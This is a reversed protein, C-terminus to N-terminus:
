VHWPSRLSRTLLRNAMEDNSFYRKKADYKLQQGTEVAIYSLHSLLDAEVAGDIGAAPEKRSKVCDLFNQIHASGSSAEPADSATAVLKEPHANISERDVHVWGDTGEFVIGHCWVRERNPDKLYHSKWYGPLMSESMFRVKVGTGYHFSIDYDIPCDDWGGGTSWQGSGEIEFGSEPQHLGAMVIIDLMHV